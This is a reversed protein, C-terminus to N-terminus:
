RIMRLYLKFRSRTEQRQHPQIGAKLYEGPSEQGGLLTAQQLLAAISAVSHDWTSQQAADLLAAHRCAHRAALEGAALRRSAQGDRTGVRCATQDWARRAATLPVENNPRDATMQRTVSQLLPTSRRPAANHPAARRPPARCPM